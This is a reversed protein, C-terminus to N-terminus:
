GLALGLLAELESVTQELTEHLVGTMGAAVAGRVNRSLDDVVLCRQPAVGLRQAALLYIAPDPKRLGVEGSLVVLDALGHLGARAPGEANSLVAARLGASRVRALVPALSGDRTASLVGLDDVLLAQFGSHATM